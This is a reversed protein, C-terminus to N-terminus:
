ADVNQTEPPPKRDGSVSRGKHSWGGGSSTYISWPLPRRRASRTCWAERANPALTRRPASTTSTARRPRICRPIASRRRTRPRHLRPSSPPTLLRALPSAFARAIWISTSQMSYRAAYSMSKLYTASTSSPARTPRPPTAWGPGGRVPRRGHPPLDVGAFGRLAPSDYLADEAGPDSLNFWHQLFYIRLMISLGVPQRGNGAKPYHPEILAELESWPVVSEMTQLFQERRSARAFKEFSPQCAFTIQHM